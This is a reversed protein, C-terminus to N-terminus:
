ADWEDPADEFDFDDEIDFDHDDDKDDPTDDILDLDRDQDDLRSSESEDSDLSDSDHDTLPEILVWLRDIKETEDVSDDTLLSKIHRCHNQDEFDQGEELQIRVFQSINSEFTIGYSLAKDIGRGVQNRIEDDGSLIFCEPNSEMLDETLRKAFQDRPVDALGDFQEQRFQFM